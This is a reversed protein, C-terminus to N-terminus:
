LIIFEIFLQFMWLLYMYKGVMSSLFSAYTASGTVAGVKAPNKRITSVTFAKGANADGPGTVEVEVFHWDTLRSLPVCFKTVKLFQKTYGCKM